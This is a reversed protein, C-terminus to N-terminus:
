ATGSGTPRDPRQRTVVHPAQRNLARLTLPLAVAAPLFWFTLPPLRDWIPLRPGNDVYFATLMATYSLAMAIIHRARWGQQHLRRARWGYGAAALAVAGAILLYATHPKAIALATATATLVALAGLYVHGNRPHRGRRKPALMAAAGSIVATLGAAIHIVVVIHLLM